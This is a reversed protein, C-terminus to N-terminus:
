GNVKDILKNIDQLAKNPFRYTDNGIKFEINDAESLQIAERETLIIANSETVGGSSEINRDVHLLKFQKRNGDILFYINNASLYRWEDSATSLLIIYNGENYMSMMIARYADSNKTDLQIAETTCSTDGTFRDTNCEVQANTISPLTLIFALIFTFKDM